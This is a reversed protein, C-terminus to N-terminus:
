QKVCVALKAEEIEFYVATTMGFPWKKRSYFGRKKSNRRWKKRKELKMMIEDFLSKLLNM